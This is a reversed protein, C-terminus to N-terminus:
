RNKMEKLNQNHREYRHTINQTWEFQFLCFIKQRVRYMQFLCIYLINLFLFGIRVFNRNSEFNWWLYISLFSVLLTERRYPSKQAQDSGQSAQFITNRKADKQPKIVNISIKGSLNQVAMKQVFLPNSMAIYKWIIKWINIIPLYKIVSTALLFLARSCFLTFM